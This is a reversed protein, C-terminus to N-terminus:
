LRAGAQELVPSNWGRGNENHEFLEAPKKEPPTRRPSEGQWNFSTAPRDGLLCVLGENQISGPETGADPARPAAGQEVYRRFLRGQRSIAHRTKKPKIHGVFLDHVFGNTGAASPPQCARGLVQAWALLRQGAGGRFVAPRTEPAGSVSPCEQGAILDM